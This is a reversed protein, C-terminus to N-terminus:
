VIYGDDDGSGSNLNVASGNPLPNVGGLAGGLDQSFTEGVVYVNHSIDVAVGQGSDSDTGAIYTGWSFAGSLALKVAYADNAGNSTGGLFLTQGVTAPFDVSDTTGAVYM